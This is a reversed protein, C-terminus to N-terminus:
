AQLNGVPLHFEVQTGTTKGAEDKQEKIQMGYKNRKLNKNLIEIREKTIITALSVHNKRKEDKHKQAAEIGIGNDKVILKIFENKQVFQVYLQGKKELNKLGHEIANEIFPQALMPPISTNEIDIEPDVYLEFEFKNNYRLQQLDLYNQLTKVEKELSIFEERSNYLISRILEAFRSLYSGAVIPNNEFIFSQISSLSNFIFHPNMQSRLLKQELVLFRNQERIKKERYKIVMIIFLVIVVIELGYFWTTKWFPPKIIVPVSLGTENWIGDNNAAIVRFTYQGPNVNTYRAIRNGERTYNWDDEFNELKYAYANKDPDSFDLATFGFSFYDQDYKLKIAEEYNFQGQEEDFIRFSTIKISPIQDNIVINDPHFVVLGNKGGFVLHGDKLKCAAGSFENDQLGDKEYFNRFIEKDPDFRSLGKNTSIWLNGADDELMNKIQNGTLGDKETFHTFSNNQSNFKNLGTGGVWINGNQDELICSAEIGHFSSSDAVDSLFRTIHNTEPNLKNLGKNTTGVWIDGKSDEFVFKVLHSSLYKQSLVSYDVVERTHFNFKALGKYTGIWLMGEEGYALSLVTDSPIDGSDFSGRTYSEVIRGHNIKLFGSNTGAWYSGNMEDTKTNVAINKSNLCISDYVPPFNITTTASGTKVLKTYPEKIVRYTGMDTLFLTAGNKVEIDLITKFDYNFYNEKLFSTYKETEPNFNFFRGPQNFGVWVVEGDFALHHVPVNTSTYPKSYRDDTFKGLSKDFKFLGMSGWMGIWFNGNSDQLLDHYWDAKFSNKLLSFHKLKGSEVDLINFGRGSWQGIWIDGENDQILASISGSALNKKPNNGGTFQALRKFDIDICELGKEEYGIWLNGNIDALLESVHSSIVTNDNGPIHFVHRFKNKSPKYISLGDVTGIWVNESKDIFIKNIHGNCISKTFNDDHGSWQFQNLDSDLRYIGDGTGIWLQGNADEQISFTSVKLRKEFVETKPDFTYLGDIGGIWYIGQSDIFYVAVDDDRKKTPDYPDERIIHFEESGPDFSYIGMYRGGLWLTGDKDKVLSHYFYTNVMTPPSHQFTNITRTKTNLKKLDGNAIEIWLINNEDAYLARIHENTFIETNSSINYNKFTGNRRNFHNLGKGTGIWLSGTEDEAICTVLNSSLSASDKPDHKFQLFSYGDYRNLGDVTGIWMYGESDQFIDLVYNNSLGDKNNLHDFKLYPDEIVPIQSYCVMGSCFVLVFIFFYRLM